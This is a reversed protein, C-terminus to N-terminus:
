LLSDVVMIADDYIGKVWAYQIASSGEESLNNVKLSEDRRKELAIVIESKKDSMKNISRINSINEM